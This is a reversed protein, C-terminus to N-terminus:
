KRLKKRKGDAGSTDSETVIKSTEADNGEVSYTASWDISDLASAAASVESKLSKARLKGQGSIATPASIPLPSEAIVKMSNITAHYIKKTAGTGTKPTLVFVRIGINAVVLVGPRLCDYNLWPPILDNNINRWNPQILKARDLAFVPGGFDPMLRHDYEAGLCIEQQNPVTPRVHPSVISDPLDLPEIVDDIKMLGDVSRKVLRTKANRSQNSHNDGNKRVKDKKLVTYLPEGTLVIAEADGGARLSRVIEKVDVQMGSRAEEVRDADRVADLTCIQNYFLNQISAPAKTPCGLAITCKVKTSDTIQIPNGPDPGGYHNGQAGIYTGFAQGMIEGFVNASFEDSNCDRYSYNASWSEGFNHRFFHENVDANALAAPGMDMFSRSLRDYVGNHKTRDVFAPHSLSNPLYSYSSM